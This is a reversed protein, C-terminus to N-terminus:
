PVSREILESSVDFAIRQAIARPNDRPGRYDAVWIKRDTGADVIRVMVLLGAGDPEVSAEVVFNVNLASAIERLPRDTEGLTTASTYSAVSVTQLRALETTVTETLRASVAADEATSSFPLVAVDANDGQAPTRNWVGSWLVM